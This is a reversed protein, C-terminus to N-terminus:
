TRRVKHSAEHRLDKGWFDHFLLGESDLVVKNHNTVDDNTEIALHDDFVLGCELSNLYCVFAVVFVVSLVVSRRTDWPM